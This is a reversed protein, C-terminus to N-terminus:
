RKPIRNRQYDIGVVRATGAYTDTSHTGRRHIHLTLQGSDPIDVTPIQFSTSSLQNQQAPSPVISLIKHNMNGSVVMNYPTFEYNIRWRINGSNSNNPFWSLRINVPGIGEARIPHIMRGKTNIGSPFNARRMGATTGKNPMSISDIGFFQFDDIDTNWKM